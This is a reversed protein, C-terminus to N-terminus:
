PLDFILVDAAREASFRLEAEGEVRAGSGAGLVEGNVRAEGTAVHLYQRRGAAPAFSVQEGAGLVTRYISADQHVKVSGDRGDPSVVLKVKGALAEPAFRKQEYGPAIGQESPEIWIQLFHVPEDDSPNFESHQVGTGASMRQIEGPTIVAVNGLSDKHSVSGSLVVSIIEMNDHSHTAFGKAPAVTDDNIVLLCSYGNENPDEYEDFSFTHFSNLWGRDAHGRAESPRVKIM